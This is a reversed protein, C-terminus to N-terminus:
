RNVVCGEGLDFLALVDLADLHHDVRLVKLPVLRELEEPLLYLQQVVRRFLDDWALVASRYLLALLEEVGLDQLLHLPSM